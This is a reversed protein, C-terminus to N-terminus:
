ESLQTLKVPLSSATMHQLKQQQPCKEAKELSPISGVTKVFYQTFLLSV